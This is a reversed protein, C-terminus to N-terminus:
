GTYFYPLYFPITTGVILIETADNDFTSKENKGHRKIVFPDKSVLDNLEKISDVKKDEFPINNYKKTM